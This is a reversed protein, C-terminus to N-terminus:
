HKRNKGNRFFKKVFDVLFEGQERSFNRLRVKVSRAEPTLDVTLPEIRAPPGASFSVRFIDLRSNVFEDLETASDQPLGNDKAFQVLAQVASRIDEHQDEDFLDLLSSDPFPDEESRAAYFNVRPRDSKGDDPTKFEEERIRNLRAIMIRSVAGGQLITPNGVDTCDVGDLAARNNELLSRTDVQLNQLVPLGIVLDERALDDDAVPFTVNSLALQGSSLHFVTRPSTWSRSFSFSQPEEGSKLAVNLRVPNIAHIKRIGQLAAREALRPSVISADSGGDCRGTAQHSARGDSVTIPCSPTNANVTVPKGKSTLRGTM